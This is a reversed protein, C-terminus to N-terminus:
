PSITGKSASKRTTLYVAAGAGAGGVIVGAIVAKKTGSMGPKPVSPPPPAPGAEPAPGTSPPPAAAACGRSIRRLRTIQIVEQAGEMPKVDPVVTATVEITNGVESELRSGRAEEAVGSLPDRLIFQGARRELCGSMEFPVQAGTEAQPEFELAMAPRVLAVVTGDATTVRLSGALAAAQVKHAETIAVRGAAGPSDALIRLGRAEIRSGAGGRLEGLGKELVLRDGFVQGRSDPALRLRIGSYLRLESSAAATELTNGEFLTANGVVAHSDVRFGGNATAVGIAASFAPLVALSFWVCLAIALRDM